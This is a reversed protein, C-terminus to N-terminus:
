ANKLSLKRAFKQYKCLKLINTNQTKRRKNTQKNNREKTQENMLKNRREETQDNARKDKM